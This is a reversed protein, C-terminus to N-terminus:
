LLFGDKLHNKPDIIIQKFGTIYATAMIEPVIVDYKGLKVEEAIKGVMITGITAEFKIEEGHKSKGKGYMVTLSADTCTGVPSCCTQNHCHKKFYDQKEQM